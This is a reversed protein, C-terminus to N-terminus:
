ERGVRSNLSVSFFGEEVTKCNKLIENQNFSEVVEDSRFQNQLGDFGFFGEDNLDASEIKNAFEVIKQMDELLSDFSEEPIELKALLAINELEQKDLM